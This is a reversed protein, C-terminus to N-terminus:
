RGIIHELDAMCGVDQGSYPSVDNDPIVRYFLSGHMIARDLVVKQSDTLGLQGEAEEGSIVRM